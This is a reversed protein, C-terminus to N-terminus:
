GPKLTVRRFLAFVRISWSWHVLLCHLFDVRMCEFCNYQCTLLFGTCLPLSVHMCSFFERPKQMRHSIVIDSPTASTSFSSTSIIICSFVFTFAFTGLIAVDFSATALLICSTNSFSLTGGLTRCAKACCGNSFCASM